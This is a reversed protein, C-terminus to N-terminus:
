GDDSNDLLDMEWPALPERRQRRPHASEVPRMEKLREQESVHLAVWRVMSDEIELHLASRLQTHTQGKTVDVYKTHAFGLLGGGSHRLPIDQVWRGLVPGVPGGVPDGIRSGSRPFYLNTWRVFAFVAAQDPVVVSRSPHPGAVKYHHTYTFEKRQRGPTPTRVLATQPPCTPMLREAVRDDLLGDSPDLLWRAHTLPSGATVLDSVRWRFGNSQAEQWASHQLAQVDGVSELRVRNGVSAGLDPETRSNLEDELARLHPTRMSPHNDHDRSMRTWAHSLVDYAIVSGLSHGYVIIRDYRGGRHLSDLLEIGKARVQQRVEVNNPSTDFYRSADGLIEAVITKHLSRGVVRGFSWVAAPVVAAFALIAAPVAIELTLGGMATSVAVVILFVLALVSAIRLAAILPRFAPTVSALKSRWVLRFAWSYVGGISAGSMIPAWYLEYVDTTPRHLSWRGPITVTVGGVLNSVYDPKFYHRERRSPPFVAKVFARLSATSRQQGIGHVVIIAQRYRRRHRDAADGALQLREFAAAWWALGGPTPLTDVVRLRSRGGGLTTVAFEVTGIAPSTYTMVVRTTSGTVRCSLVQAARGRLHVAQGVELSLHDESGLWLRACEQHVLFETVMPVTFPLRTSISVRSEMVPHKWWLGDAVLAGENRTGVLNCVLEQCMLVEFGETDPVVIVQAPVTVRHIGSREPQVSGDEVTSAGDSRQGAAVARGPPRDALPAHRHEVSQRAWDLYTLHRTVRGHGSAASNEAFRHCRGNWFVCVTVRHAVFLRHPHHEAVEHQPFEQGNFIDRQQGGEGVGVYAQPVWLRRVGGGDSGPSGSAVVPRAAVVRGPCDCVALVLQHARHGQVVDVALLCVGFEAVPNCGPGAATPERCQSCRSGGSEPELRQPQM